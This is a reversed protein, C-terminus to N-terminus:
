DRLCRVSFGVVKYYNYRYINSDYYYMRRYWTNPANYETASWWYGNSGINIFTGNYYRFGGPLATFGSTGFDADSELAGASWLGANGALKSGENTGRWDTDDADAQSMGLAMELEKWEDDSPLHWGTPCVGQVGSPNNTVSPAGNMAAAWTYLAGYTSANTAPDDDYYCYAKDTQILADWNSDGTVHPIPTGDSYHTTRLNEKMWVQSGITVTNYVNGDYDTVTTSNGITPKYFIVSDIETNVNYHSVIAANKIVYMTDNNTSNFNISDIDINVNYQGVVVGAKMIYMTDNQAFLSSLSFTFSLLAALSVKKITNISKM